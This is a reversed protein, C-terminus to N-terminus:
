EIGEVLCLRDCRRRLPQGMGRGPIGVVEVAESQNWPVAHDNEGRVQSLTLKQLIGYGRRHRVLVVRERAGGAEVHVGRGVPEALRRLRAFVTLFENLAVASRLRRPYCANISDGAMINFLLTVELLQH